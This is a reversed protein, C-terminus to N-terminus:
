ESFMTHNLPPHSTGEGGTRSHGGRWVRDGGRTRFGRAVKVMVSPGEVAAPAQGSGASAYKGVAEKIYSSGAGWASSCM